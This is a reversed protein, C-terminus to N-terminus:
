MIIVKEKSNYCYLHKIMIIFMSFYGDLLNKVFNTDQANELFCIDVIDVHFRGSWTLIDIVCKPLITKYM